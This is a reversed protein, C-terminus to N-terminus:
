DDVSLKKDVKKFWRMLKGDSDKIDHWDGEHSEHASGNGTDFMVDSMTITEEGGLIEKVFYNKLSNLDGYVHILSMELKANLYKEMIALLEGSMMSDFGQDRISKHADLKSGAPLGLIGVAVQQMLNMLNDQNIKNGSSLSVNFGKSTEVGGEKKVPDYWYEQKQWPYTPLGVKRGGVGTYVASWNVIVDSLYLQQLSELVM